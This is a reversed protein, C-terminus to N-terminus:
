LWPYPSLLIFLAKWPGVKPHKWQSLDICHAESNLLAVNSCAYQLSQEPLWLVSPPMYLLHPLLRSPPRAIFSFPSSPLAPSPCSTSLLMLARYCFWSSGLEWPAGLKPDTFSPSLVTLETSSHLLLQPVWVTEQFFHYQLPPFHASTDCLTLFHLTFPTQPPFLTCRPVPDPAGPTHSAPLGPCVLWQSCPRGGPDSCLCVAM